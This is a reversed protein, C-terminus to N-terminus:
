AASESAQLMKTGGEGPDQERISTIVMRISMSAQKAKNVPQEWLLVGGGMGGGCTPTMVSCACGTDMM